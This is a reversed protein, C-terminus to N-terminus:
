KTSDVSATAPRSSKGGQVVEGYAPGPEFDVFSGREIFAVMVQYPLVIRSGQQTICWGDKGQLFCGVVVPARVPVTLADYRPATHPLGVVRPKFSEALGQATQVPMGRAQGPSLASSGGATAGPATSGPASGAAPPQRLIERGWFVYWALGLLLVVLGLMAWVKWPVAMKVTHVEASEYWTFVEKPFRWQSSISDKRSKDCNDRSGKWLHVTSWWTGFKRMLHRHEEVDKRVNADLKMPHQTVLYIDFGGHRHKAIRDAHEPPKSATSGKPFIDQAEDIVIISGHPLEWWRMVQELSLLHWPLTLGKINYYYVERNEAKRRREVHDITWLTKGAGPTGTTLVVPM